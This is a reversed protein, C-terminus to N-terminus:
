YKLQSEPYAINQNELYACKEIEKRAIELIQCLFKIYESILHITELRGPRGSVFPVMGLAQQLTSNFEHFRRKERESRKRRKEALDFSRPLNIEVVLNPTEVFTQSLTRSRKRSSQNSM